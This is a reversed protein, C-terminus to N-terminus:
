HNNGNKVFKTSFSNGAYIIKAIYIGSQLHSINITQESNIYPITLVNRGSIDYIQLSGREISTDFSFNIMGNSPNPYVSVKRKLSYESNALPVNDSLARVVHGVKVGNYLLVSGSILIKGDPQVIINNVAGGLGENNAFGTGGIFSTDLTGNSNLRAMNLIAINGYSTFNGGILIKGDPELAMCKPNSYKNTGKNLFIMEKAVFAPDWSGDANLRALGPPPPPSIYPSFAGSILIKGDPQILVFDISWSIDIGTVNFTTDLSGDTNLRAIYEKPKGDYKTFHGTIIIQGDTQITVSSPQVDPGAGINFTTDLTGNANLRALYKTSVGNYNLFAGTILIKGDTQLAVDYIIDDAGTGIVFSADLTGDANIRAIRNRLINNYYKFQGVIIIKGDSQIAIDYVTFNPGYGTTFTTDLTGDRNIRVLRSTPTDNYSSVYTGSIIIKGDTQLAMSSTDNNSGSAFGGPNYFTTDLTGDSELQAFRGILTDNYSTFDGGILIGGDSKFAISTVPLAENTGSNFTDDVTGDTNIRILNRKATGISSTFKGGALIKGNPLMKLSTFTGSSENTYTFSNDLTGDSNLRVLAKKPIANYKTFWGGILIKGDSQLEVCDIGYDAFGPIFTTDLSGDTNIQAVGKRSTGNYTEFDGIIVIKGTPQVIVKKISGNAGTGTNFTTDLFGDANLRAINKIALGDYNAFYGGILVKGDTQTAVSVYSNTGTGSHFNTDLTGDTNLRAIRNAAVDNYSTFGGIVVIKGDYQITISTIAANAGKGVNFSSDVTGDTNLRTIFKRSAYDYNTFSGVVLIKGDSQVAIADVKKDFGAGSRPNFSKDIEGPQAYMGISSHLLLLLSFLSKKM